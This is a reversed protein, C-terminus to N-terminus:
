IKVPYIKSIQKRETDRSRWVQPAGGKAFSNQMKRPISRCDRVPKNKLKKFTHMTVFLSCILTNVHLELLIAQQISRIGVCLLSVTNYHLTYQHKPAWTHRQHTSLHRQSTVQLAKHLQQQQRPTVTAVTSTLLRLSLSGTESPSASDLRTRDTAPTRAIYTQSKLSSILTNNSFM